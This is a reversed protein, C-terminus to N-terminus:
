GAARVARGTQELLLQSAMRRVEEAYDATSEPLAGTRGWNVKISKLMDDPNGYPYAWFTAGTPMHVLETESRIKFQDRTVSSM